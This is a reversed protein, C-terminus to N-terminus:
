QYGFSRAYDKDIEFSRTTTTSSGLVGFGGRVNSYVTEDLRVSFQDLAGNVSAYYRSLSFDFETLSFTISTMRYRGKEPDGDSIQRMAWDVAAFDFALVKRGSYSPYVPVLTGDNDVLQMPIAKGVPIVGADTSKEGRLTLSPFFLHEEDVDDQWDFIWAMGYTFESVLTTVGHPFRPTPEVPSPLPTITKATLVENSPTRATITITDGPWSMVGLHRYSLVSTTVGGPLWGTVIQEALTYTRPGVALTVAAGTIAPNGTRTAPDLGVVDYVRTLTAEIPGRDFRPDVTVVCYLVPHPEIPVKPSFSDECALAFCGLLAALVRNLCVKM